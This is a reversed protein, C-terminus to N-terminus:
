RGGGRPPLQGFSGGRQKSRSLDGQSGGLAASQYGAGQGQYGPPLGGLVGTIGSQLEQLLWAAHTPTAPPAAPADCCPADCLLRVEKSGSRRVSGGSAVRPLGPVAAPPRAASQPAGRGGGPSPGGRSSSGGRARAEAARAREEEEKEALLLSPYPAAGQPAAYEQGAFDSDALRNPVRSALQVVRTQGDVVRRAGAPTLALGSLSPEL